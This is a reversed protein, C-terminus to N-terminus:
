YADSIVFYKWWNNLYGQKDKGSGRPLCGFWWKHHLRTDGNGWSRCDTYVKDETLNPYNAWVGFNTWVKKRNGWDYDSDSNPAFHINGCGANGPSVKDYLTFKEWTNMKDIPINYDWRQYVNAMVFEMRHGFDELMEGVGREYNFNM